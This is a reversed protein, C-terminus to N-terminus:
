ISLTPLPDLYKQHTGGVGDGILVQNYPLLYPTMSPSTFSLPPCSPPLSLSLCFAVEEGLEGSQKSNKDM